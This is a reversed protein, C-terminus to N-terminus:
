SNDMAKAAAGIAVGFPGAIDLAPLHLAEASLFSDPMQGSM